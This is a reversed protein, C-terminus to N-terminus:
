GLDMEGALWRRIAALTADIDGEGPVALADAEDAPEELTALQSDLLSPSMFHRRQQMRRALEARPVRLYVFRVGRGAQRLRDRYVRRLASCAVVGDVGRELRAAMWAAIADLWPWRDADTLPEGRSLKALNAPTHLLDGELFDWGLEQALRAAVTSKGSASVGMVVIMMAPAFTTGAARPDTV